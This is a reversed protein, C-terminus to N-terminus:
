HKHCLLFKYQYNPNIQSIAKFATKYEGYADFFFLNANYFLNNPHSFINQVLRALGWSKGSGSNGFIAMHNSLITNLDVYIPFKDHIPSNGILLSKETQKGVIIQLEENNIVRISSNLDPKRIVGPIYGDNIFEGLFQIKIEDELIDKVEGLIRKDESEFVVQLNILNPVINGEKIIEVHANNDSIFKIKGFM